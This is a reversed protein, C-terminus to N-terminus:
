SNKLFIKRFKENTACRRKITKLFYQRNSLIENYEIDTLSQLSVNPVSKPKTIIKWDFSSQEPKDNQFGIEKFTSEIKASAQEYYKGYKERASEEEIELETM